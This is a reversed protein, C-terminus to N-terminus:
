WGRDAGQLGRTSGQPRGGPHTGASGSPRATAVRSSDGCPRDRRLRRTACDRQPEASKRGPTNACTSAAAPTCRAEASTRSPRAAPPTPATASRCNAASKCDSCRGREAFRADSSPSAQHARRASQRRGACDTQGAPAFHRDLNTRACRARCCRAPAPWPRARGPGSRGTILRAQIAPLCGPGRGPPAGVCKAGYRQLRMLARM